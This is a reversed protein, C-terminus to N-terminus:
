LFIQVLQQLLLVHCPQQDRILFYPLFSSSLNDLEVPLHMSNLSLGLILQLSTYEHDLLIKLRGVLPFVPKDLSELEVLVRSDVEEFLLLMLELENQFGQANLVGGVGIGLDGVLDFM